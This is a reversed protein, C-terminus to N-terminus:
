QQKISRNTCELYPNAVKFKILFGNIITLPTFLRLKKPGTSLYYKTRRTKNCRGRMIIQKSSNEAVRWSLGGFSARGGVQGGAIRASCALPTNRRTWAAEGDQQWRLNKRRGCATRTTPTDRGHSGTGPSLTDLFCPQRDPDHTYKDCTSTIKKGRDIQWVVHQKHTKEQCKCPPPTQGQPVM